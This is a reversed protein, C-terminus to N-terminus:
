QQKRFVVQNPNDSDSFRTPRTEMDESIRIQIVRDTLFRVIMPLTSTEGSTTTVIVDLHMPNQSADLRWTATGKNTTGGIVTNGHIFLVTGDAKFVFSMAYGDSDKGSWEGLVEGQPDQVWAATPFLVCFAVLIYVLMRKM